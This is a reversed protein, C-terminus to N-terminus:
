TQGYHGLVPLPTNRRCFCIANFFHCHCSAWSDCCGDQPLCSQTLQSCRPTTPKSAPKPATPRVPFKNPKAPVHIRQREYQGRRAFIPRQRQAANLTRVQNQVPRSASIKKYTNQLDNRTFIRGNVAVFYMLIVICLVALKM